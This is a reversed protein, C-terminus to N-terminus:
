PKPEISGVIPDISLGVARLKAVVTDSVMPLVSVHRGKERLLAVLRQIVECGEDSIDELSSLDLIAHASETPESALADLTVEDGARLDRIVLLPTAEPRSEREFREM